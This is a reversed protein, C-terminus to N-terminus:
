WLQSWMPFSAIVAILTLYIMMKKEYNRRETKEVEQKALCAVEIAEIKRMRSEIDVSKKEITEIEKGFGNNVKAFTDRTIKELEGLRKEIAELRKEVM